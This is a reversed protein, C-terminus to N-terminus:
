CQQLLNPYARKRVYIRMQLTKKPSQGYILILLFIIHVFFLIFLNGAAEVYKSFACIAIALYRNGLNSEDFPGALDIHIRWMIQPIVPIPQLPSVQANNWINNKHACVCCEKTKQRVFKEGGLWYFRM